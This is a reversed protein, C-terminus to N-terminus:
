GTFIDAQTQSKDGYVSKVRMEDIFAIRRLPDAIKSQLYKKGKLYGDETKPIFYGENCSCVVFEKYTMQDVIIENIVKALERQFDKWVAFAKEKLNNEAYYQYTRYEGLKKFFEESSIPKDESSFNKLHFVVKNKDLRSKSKIDKTSISKKM